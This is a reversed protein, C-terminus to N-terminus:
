LQKTLYLLRNHFNVYDANSAAQPSLLVPGGKAPTYNTNLAALEKADTNLLRAIEELTQGVKAPFSKLKKIARNVRNRVRQQLPKAVPASSRRKVITRQGVAAPEQPTPLEPVKPPPINTKSVLDTKIRSNDLDALGGVKPEPIDVPPPVNPRTPPTSLDTVPPGVSKKLKLDSDPPM